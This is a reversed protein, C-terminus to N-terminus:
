ESPRHALMELCGILTHFDYGSGTMILGRNFMIVGLAVVIVGSAKIIKPAVNASLVSTLLGFGLMVPLTGLGFAFLLKAGEIPSGTGAAMIYLAQLPGCIIMLGNLLGIVFPHSNKKYAKGVWRM